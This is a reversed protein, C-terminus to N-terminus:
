PETAPVKTAPRSAPMPAAMAPATTPATHKPLPTSAQTPMESAPPANFGFLPGVHGDYLIAIGWWMQLGVVVILLGTTVLPVIRGRRMWRVFMALLLPLVVLCAAMIVHLLVRHHDSHGLVDANDSLAQGTFASGENFSWYGFFATLLAFVAAAIFFWGPYVKPPLSEAAAGSADRVERDRAPDEALPDAVGIRQELADALGEPAAGEWKRLMMAIGVLICAVMAGALVVHVQLPPAYYDLGRDKLPPAGLHKQSVGIGWDYVAEGGHFAGLGILVDVAILGLFCFWYLKRRRADPSAIWVMVILVAILSAISTFWIHDSILEWQQARWPSEQVVERSPTEVEMDGPTVEARFAYLGSLLVPLTAFAGLGIMWRGATRLGGKRNFLTIVEIFLGLTLLCIPYHILIVHWNPNILEDSM